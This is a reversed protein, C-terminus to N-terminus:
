SGAKSRGPLRAYAPAIPMIWRKVESLTLDVRGKQTLYYVGRREVLYELVLKAVETIRYEQRVSDAEWIQAAYELAMSSFLKKDVEAFERNQRAAQEKEDLLLTYYNSLGHAVNVLEFLLRGALESAQPNEHHLEAFTREADSQYGQCFAKMPAADPLLAIINQLGKFHDSYLKTNDVRGKGGEERVPRGESLKGAKAVPKIKAAELMAQTATEVSHRVPDLDLRAYIATAQPTKHNLSKGIIPLSAGTKAQWSGLTRRLDHIRLDTMEYSAPDVGLEDALTRYHKEAAVPAHAIQQEAQQREEATLKDLTELHDLLRRLGARLLIATWAKKPEVLHGSKGEGPFVFQSGCTERRRTELITVAEPSLTVNQPTGNKTMGIRWIRADLDIDRWAMEQVNSRRAGTLLSLWFFDALSSEAIAAFLQPLEFKQAFRDRSPAPNKQIRSAPNTGSFIELDAAFNFVSSVIALARDAQAASKKTTKTHIAKIDARTVHSLKKSKIPELYMRLTDRYDRKTREGIPTGDRKRKEVLFQEFMEAFSPEERIARRAAAPNAGAAFEGLIKQAEVRAQEITMEPFSGLKVWAISAGARKVVYFTRAGAATIRIALKPVETDYVALRKGQEPPVLSSLTTKTFKLKAM